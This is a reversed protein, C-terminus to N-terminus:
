MLKNKVIPMAGGVLTIIGGIFTLWFGIQISSSGLPKMDQTLFLIGFIVVIASLILVIIGLVNNITAFKDDNKVIPLIMLVIAIIGCILSFLPLFTYKIEQLYFTLNKDGNFVELGTWSFSVHLIGPLGNDYTVWNLFVGVVMIIAGIVGIIGLPNMEKFDM